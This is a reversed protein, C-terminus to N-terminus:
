KKSRKIFDSLYDRFPCGRWLISYELYTKVPLIYWTPSNILKKTKRNYQQHTEYYQMRWQALEYDNTVLHIKLKTKGYERYCIKYGYKSKDM